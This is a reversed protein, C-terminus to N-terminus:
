AGLLAAHNFHQKKSLVAWAIRALEKAMDSMLHQIRVGIDVQGTSVLEWVARVMWHPLAASM